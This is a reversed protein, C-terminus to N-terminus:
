LAERAPKERLKEEQKMKALVLRQKEEPSSGQWEDLLWDLERSMTRTAVEPRAQNVKMHRRM